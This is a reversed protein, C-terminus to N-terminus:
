EEISRALFLRANLCEGRVRETILCNGAIEQDRPAGYRGNMRDENKRARGLCSLCRLQKAM